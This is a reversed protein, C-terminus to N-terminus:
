RENRIKDQFHKNENEECNNNTKVCNKNDETDNNVATNNALNNERNLDNQLKIIQEQLNLATDEAQEKELFLLRM